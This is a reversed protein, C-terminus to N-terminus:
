VANIVLMGNYVCVCVSKEIFDSKQERTDKTLRGNLDQWFLNKDITNFPYDATMCM